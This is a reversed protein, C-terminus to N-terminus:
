NCNMMAGEKRCFRGDTSMFSSKGNNNYRTGSNDVCGGKDCHTIVSPGSNQNNQNSQSYSEAASSKHDLSIQLIESYSAGLDCATKMALQRSTLRRPKINPYPTSAERCLETRHRKERRQNNAEEPDQGIVLLFPGDETDEEYQESEQLTGYEEKFLPGNLVNAQHIEVEDVQVDGACPVGSFTIKGQSDTCKFVHANATAAVLLSFLFLSRYAKKTAAKTIYHTRM